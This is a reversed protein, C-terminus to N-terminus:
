SVKIGLGWLIKSGLGLSLTVLGRLVLLDLRQFIIAKCKVPFQTQSQRASFTLPSSHPPAPSPASAPTFDTSSPLAPAPAPNTSDQFDLEQSQHPFRRFLGTILFCSSLPKRCGWPTECRGMLKTIELIVCMFFHNSRGAYRFPAQVIDKSFHVFSMDFYYAKQHRCGEQNM